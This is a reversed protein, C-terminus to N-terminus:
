EDDHDIKKFNYRLLVRIPLQKGNREAARWQMKRITAAVSEDLGYGAWRTIEIRTIKGNEDLDVLSDVTATIDYLNAMATYEPSLRRYPLPTRFNKAEPSNEDPLEEPTPLESLSPLM